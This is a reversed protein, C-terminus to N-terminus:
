VRSMKRVAGAEEAEKLLGLAGKIVARQGARDGPRGLTRGLLHPAIVLRALSMGEVRQQFARIGIVVTAIGAEELSRAVHGVSVHCM